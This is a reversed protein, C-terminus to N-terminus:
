MIVRPWNSALVLSRGVAIDEGVERSRGRTVGVSAGGLYRGGGDGTGQCPQLLPDLAVDVSEAAEGGLKPPSQAANSCSPIPRMMSIMMMSIMMMMM